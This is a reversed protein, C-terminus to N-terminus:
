AVGLRPRPDALGALAALRHRQWRRTRGADRAAYSRTKGEETKPGPKLSKAGTSMGGHFRCRLGSPDPKGKVLLLKCQCPQGKRTKAGCIRGHRTRKRGAM